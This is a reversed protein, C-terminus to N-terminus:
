GVPASRAENPCDGYASWRGRTEKPALQAGTAPIFPCRAATDTALAELGGIRQRLCVVNSGKWDILWLRKRRFIHGLGGGHRGTM